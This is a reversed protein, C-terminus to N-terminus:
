EREETSVKARHLNQLWSEPIRTRQGPGILPVPKGDLLAQQDGPLLLWLGPIGDSRGVKQSLRALLDMQEYRALPGPYIVLMTKAANLLRQEIAPMARGILMMLKDWDGRQPAADTKLVLDWQVGAQTTVALLSDLFLGEFDILELPFRRCLESRAREYYKPNVLLALFAGEKIARQLREEFQRADAEEPTVEGAQLHGPATPLRLASESGSTVSVLERLPSVYCGVGDKGTEDWRFDFGAEKLLADLEPRDPLSAADPYRSGVRERIQQVTLHRVGLLAGQSLKLARAASLGKPYLEQRSSVAAHTSVEAALRVLRSDSLGANVPPTIERLKELVRTPAALPDEAAVLDAVEGLRRAYNALEVNQAILIREGERRVLYRPESMTREVEVAARVVAGAVKTRQPEDLSSGRALLVADTVERVSMVGGQGALIEAIHARLATLAADKSWRAQLKSVVQGIRGRTVNLIQAIEAQSPWRAALQSNLGLMAHLTGSVTEGKRSGVRHIREALLDVSLTAVDLTEPVPETAEDTTATEKTPTGLRDRLIKVAATIERRTKNGVGRMRLLRRMSFTLLDEVTMVNARDLVNTARTGLGLEPIPTDFTAEGLLESLQSGDADDTLSGSEEIGEFCHRWARLMEEANDFRQAIDRRFAKRFFEGLSERLGPDFQDADVTIETSPSLHSPDTTGDGWKPLSGTALEYLTAAAAYREAHLDWRPPKRLPLLPDLYGTTGARINDTPTRSLSFDFLVLHLKDGRGVKGVAINDPKIDRHPIGQEELHSVVGLLDEGFRQLLDIHLRGEKRLRQGLTEIAKKEREVFVPRMLFAVRDGIELSEIFEVVHSHRVKQLVDAEDEIRSNNDPNNAVKLVFEQDQREVLLAVSCAGQGLRRVVSFGGPLLDGIQAHDPDEVYDHEPSSQEKEVADLCSLFDVVSDIRNSVEPHTSYQILFQLSEGAGNLVSSIPLGKTERLKNSLDLGNAAPAVGSFVHYAIAGLSFVDLHEGPTDDTLAEPAMYATGADEVLRDVHSTATVNRSVGSTSTGERYGVQWNYVKVRPRDGTANTVLISQPCLARHVVKKDHAYRMVEAIQRVLDLRDATSLKDKQQALYHDLRISLPDHEFILAPGVEHETLGYAKLVGPHQLTELLQFERLAARQNTQREDATAGTRVLYLRVRRVSEAVQSHTAHWDQYGPGEAIIQNLVYDSVKRHRQSPRIGAQEMAQSILKAIPRDHTGKPTAELGLCERRKIAAMIGLRALKDGEADRDRLCLRFRANGQLELNLDLASCFVLAEVFPLPGKKQCVKQRQLLTRLKKAKLNAAILPSDVTSLRGDTEWTWTGADGFLRGPRSKIEILFFGQPTFVLLDVENISGDDAIFEFNAWARYPDHTPFRARVFELADREWPYKSETVTTWNRTTSM